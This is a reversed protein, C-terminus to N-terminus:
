AAASQALQQEYAACFESFPRFGLATLQAEAEEQTANLIQIAMTAVHRGGVVEAKAETFPEYSGDLKELSVYLGREFIMAANPTLVPQQTRWFRKILGFVNQDGTRIFYM